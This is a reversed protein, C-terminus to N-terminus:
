RNNHWSQTKYILAQQVKDFLIIKRQNERMSYVELPLLILILAVPNLLAKIKALLYRSGLSHEKTSRSPM